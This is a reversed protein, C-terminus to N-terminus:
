LEFSASPRNVAQSVSKRGSSLYLSTFSVGLDNSAGTTSDDGNGITASSTGNIVNDLEADDLDDFAKDRPYKLTDPTGFYGSSRGSATSIRSAHSDPDESDVSAMPSRVIESTSMTGSDKERLDISDKHVM